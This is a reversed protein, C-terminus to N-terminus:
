YSEHLHLFNKKCYFRYNIGRMYIPLKGILSWTNPSTVWCVPEDNVFALNSPIKPNPNGEIDTESLLEGMSRNFFWPVILLLINQKIRFWLFSFFTLPFSKPPSNCIPPQSACGNKNMGSVLSPYQCNKMDDTISVLVM